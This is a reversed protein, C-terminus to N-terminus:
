LAQCLIQGGSLSKNKDRVVQDVCWVVDKLWADVFYFTGVSESLRVATPDDFDLIDAFHYCKFSVTTAAGFVALAILLVAWPYGAYFRAVRFVSRKGECHGELVFNM